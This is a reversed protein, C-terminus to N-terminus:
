VTFGLHERLVSNLTEASYPKLLAVTGDDLAADMASDRGTVLVIPISPHLRRAQRAFEIGDMGPMLVDTLILDFAPDRGLEHLADQAREFPAVRIGGGMLLAALTERHVAEDDVVMVRPSHPM